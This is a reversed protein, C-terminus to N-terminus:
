YAGFQLRKARHYVEIEDKNFRFGMTHAVQHLAILTQLLAETTSARVSVDDVFVYLYAQPCREM